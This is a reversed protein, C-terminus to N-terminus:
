EYNFDFNNNNLFVVVVVFVSKIGKFCIISRVLNFYNSLLKQKSKSQVTSMFKMPNM